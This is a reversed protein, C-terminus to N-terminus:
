EIGYFRCANDYTLEAAQEPTIGHLEAVASLTHVLNASHNLKGRYPHPALYPCDTEMMMHEMPVGAVVEKVRRANKFTVVGSFSLMWGRRILEAAMEASGSFSHFVGRVGPYDRVIDMCAGHAERDHIIVPLGTEKALEMQARFWREQVSAEPENWYFDMGTEGIAVVKPSRTLARVADMEYDLTGAKGCDNPHIGVAAYVQPYKQALEVSARSSALSAGVNVIREVGCSFVYPLVADRGGEFETEFRTDDYHAHSDFIRM